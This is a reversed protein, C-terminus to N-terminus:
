LHFDLLCRNENIELIYATVLNAVVDDDDSEFNM